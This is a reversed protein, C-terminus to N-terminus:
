AALATAQTQPKQGRQKLFIWFAYIALATGFPIDWINLAGLVLAAILAWREKKLLFVGVVIAPLETVVMVILIISAIHSIIHPSVGFSLIEEVPIM